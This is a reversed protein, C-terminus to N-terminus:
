TAVKYDILIFICDSGDQDCYFVPVFLCGSLVRLRMHGIDCSLLSGMTM